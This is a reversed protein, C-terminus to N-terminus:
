AEDHAAGAEREARKKEAFEAKRAEAQADVASM